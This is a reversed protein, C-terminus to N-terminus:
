TDKGMRANFPERPEQGREKRNMEFRVRTSVLMEVTEIAKEVVRGFSECMLALVEEGGKDPFRAYELLEDMDHGALHEPWRVRKLWPSVELKDIPRIKKNRREKEAVKRRREKIQDLLRRAISRGNNQSGQNGSEARSEDEVEFYNQRVADPCISEGGSSTWIAQERVPTGTRAANVMWGARMFIGVHAVSNACDENTAWFLMDGPQAQARPVHKGKPSHYQTQATRPILLGSLAPTTCSSGISRESLPFPVFATAIAAMTLGLLSSQYHM